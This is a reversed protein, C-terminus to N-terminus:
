MKQPLIEWVFRNIYSCFSIFLMIILSITFSSHCVRYLICILKTRYIRTSVCCERPHEESLDENKITKMADVTGLPAGNTTSLTIVGGFQGTGGHDFATGGSEPFYGNRTLLVFAIVFPIIYGFIILFWAISTFLVHAKAANYLSRTVCNSEHEELPTFFTSKIGLRLVIIAYIM